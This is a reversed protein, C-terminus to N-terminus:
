HNQPSSPAAVTEQSVHVLLSKIYHDYTRAVMEEERREHGAGCHASQLEATDHLRDSICTQLVLVMVVLGQSRAEIGLLPHDLTRAHQVSVLSVAHRIVRQHYTHPSGGIM